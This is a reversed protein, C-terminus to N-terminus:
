RRTETTGAATPASPAAEGQAAALILLVLLVLMVLAWSGGRKARSSPRRSDTARAEQLLLARFTEAERRTTFLRQGIVHGDQLLEVSFPPTPTKM